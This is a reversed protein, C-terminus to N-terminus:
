GRPRRKPPKESKEPEDPPDKAPAPKDGRDRAEKPPPEDFFSGKKRPAGKKSDRPRSKSPRRGKRRPSAKKSVGPRPDPSSSAKKPGAEDAPARGEIQAVLRMATQYRELDEEALLDRHDHYYRLKLEPFTGTRRRRRMAEVSQQVNKDAKDLYEILAAPEPEPLLYMAVTLKALLRSRDKNDLLDDVDAPTSGQSWPQIDHLYRRSLVWLVWRRMEHLKSPIQVDHSIALAILFPIRDRFTADSTSLQQLMREEPGSAKEKIRSELEGVLTRIGARRRAIFSPRGGKKPQAQREIAEKLPKFDRELRTRQAKVLEDVILLREETTAAQDLRDRNSRTLSDRWRMYRTMTRELLEDDDGAKRLAEHLSRLKRKEDERLADFKEFSEHLREQQESTMAAVRGYRRDTEERSLEARLGPATSALTALAYLPGLSRMLAQRLMSRGSSLSGIM